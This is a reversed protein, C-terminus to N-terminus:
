RPVILKVLRASFSDQDIVRDLISQIHKDVHQLTELKDHSASDEILKGDIEAVYVTSGEMLRTTLDDRRPASRAAIQEATEGPRPTNTTFM